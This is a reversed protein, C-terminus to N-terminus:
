SIVAKEKDQVKLKALLYFAPLSMAIISFLEARLVIDVPLALSILAAILGIVLANTVKKSQNISVFFSQLVMLIIYSGTLGGLLYFNSSSSTSNKGFLLEVIQKGFIGFTLIWTISITTAFIITKKLFDYNTIKQVNHISQFRPILISQIVPGLFVPIRSITLANLEKGSLEGSEDIAHILFPGINLVLIVILNGIVLKFINFRFHIKQSVLNLFRLNVVRASWFAVVVSAFSIAFASNLGSKGLFLIALAVFFIRLGGEVSMLGAYIRFKFSNLLRARAAYITTFSVLTILLAPLYLWEGQFIKNIYLPAFIILIVALAILVSKIGGYEKNLAEDKSLNLNQLSLGHTELPYSVGMILGMVLSWFAAFEGYESAPLNKELYTLLVFTLVALFGLGIIMVVRNPIREYLRKVRKSLYTM